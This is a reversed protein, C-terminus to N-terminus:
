TAKEQPERNMKWRYYNKTIGIGLGLGMLFLLVGTDRSM